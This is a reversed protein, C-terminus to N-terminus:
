KSILIFVFVASTDGEPILSTKIIKGWAEDWLSLAAFFVKDGNIEKQTSLGTVNM